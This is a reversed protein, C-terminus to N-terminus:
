NFKHNYSCLIIIHNKKADTKFTPTFQQQGNTVSILQSRRFIVLQLTNVTTRHQLTIVDGDSIMIFKHPWLKALLLHLPSLLPHLPLQYAPHVTTSLQKDKVDTLFTQMFQLRLRYVNPLPNVTTEQTTTYACYHSTTFWHCGYNIKDFITYTMMDCTKSDTITTSSTTIPACYYSTTRQKCRNRINSYITSTTYACQSTAPQTTEQTTTYQCFYSTTLHKCGNRTDTLVTSTMAECTPMSTVTTSSTTTPTTDACYYSTTQHKCGFGVNTYVSSTLTDCKYPCTQTTKVPLLINVTIHHRWIIAVGMTTVTFLLLWLTAPQNLQFPQLVQRLLQLLLRHLQFLVKCFYTTSQHECWGDWSTMVASTMDKCSPSLTTTTYSTPKSNCYYSTTYHKCRGDWNQVVASTMDNCVSATTTTHSTTTSSPVCYYSTTRKQLLWIRKRYCYFNTSM